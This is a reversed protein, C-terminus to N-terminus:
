GRPMGHPVAYCWVQEPLDIDDGTDPDIWGCQVSEFVLLDDCNYRNKRRYKRYISTSKKTM